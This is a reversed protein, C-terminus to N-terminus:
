TGVDVNITVQDVSSLAIDNNASVHTCYGSVNVERRCRLQELM